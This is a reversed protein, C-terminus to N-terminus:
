RRVDKLDKMWPKTLDERVFKLKIPSAGAMNFPPQNPVEMYVATPCWGDVLGADEHSIATVQMRGCPLTGRRM